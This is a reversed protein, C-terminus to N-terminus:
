WRLVVQAFRPIVGTTDSVPSRKEILKTEAFDALPCIVNLIDIM